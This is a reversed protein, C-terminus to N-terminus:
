SISRVHSKVVLLCPDYESESSVSSMFHLNSYETQNLLAHAYLDVDSVGKEGIM